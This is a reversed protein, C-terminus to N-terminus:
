AAVDRVALIWGALYTLAATVAAALVCLVAVTGVTVAGDDSFVGTGLQTARGLLAWPSILAVGPALLLLVTSVAVGAAAVFVPLAFSRTLMSLLSQVAAVPVSALAILASIGLYRVPLTGPLGFVVSGLVLVTGVMVVQMVAALAAVTVTKAVVISLPTVPSSMLGNWNGRQHDARWTLGALVAIGVPLPFLGYFVVSRMWLTHWGDELPAADILSMASGTLGIVVPLLVVVVWALSRRLKRLEASIVRAM